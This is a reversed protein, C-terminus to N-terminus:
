LPKQCSPCVHVEVAGDILFKDIDVNVYKAIKELTVVGIKRKGVEILSIATASKFGCIKALEGQSLGLSKRAQRINESVIENVSKKKM